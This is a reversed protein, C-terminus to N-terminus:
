FWYLRPCCSGPHLGPHFSYPASFSSGSISLSITMMADQPIVSAGVPVDQTRDTSAILLYAGIGGAILLVAAGVTLMLSTKDKKLM